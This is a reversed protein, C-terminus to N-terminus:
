CGSRDQCYHIRVKSEEVRSCSGSKLVSINVLTQTVLAGQLLAIQSYYRSSLNAGESVLFIYRKGNVEKLKKEEPTKGMYRLTIGYGQNVNNDIGKLDVLSVVYGTGCSTVDNESAASSLSCLAILMWLFIRSKM